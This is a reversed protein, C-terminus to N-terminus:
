FREHESVRCAQMWRQRKRRELWVYRVLAVAFACGLGAAFSVLESM